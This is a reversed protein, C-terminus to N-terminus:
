YIKVITNVTLKVGPEMFHINTTGLASVGVSVMLSRSVHLTLINTLLYTLLYTLTCLTSLNLVTECLMIESKVMGLQLM